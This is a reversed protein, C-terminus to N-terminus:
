EETRDRRESATWSALVTRLATVLSLPEDLMVHHAAAPIEAVLTQPGLWARLRDAMGPSMLGHQARLIAARGGAQGAARAQGAQAASIRPPGAMKAFLAQDFKWGWKGNERVTVSWAAVHERLYPLAPQEPVLRFRALIAERSPYGLARGVGFGMQPTSMEPPPPGEFMPSDIVVIGAVADGYCRATAVAVSGGLSHGIIFPSGAIGADAAVAMVEAAWQDPSYRERWDSDGHGSMSLAAVRLGDAQLFPAIHDWWHAHAATGHVLM